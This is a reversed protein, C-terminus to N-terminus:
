IIDYINIKSNNSFNKLITHYIKVIRRPKFFPYMPTKIRIEKFKKYTSDMKESHVLHLMGIGLEMMSTVDEDM